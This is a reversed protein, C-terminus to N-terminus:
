VVFLVKCSMTRYIINQTNLSNIFMKFAWPLMADGDNLDAM